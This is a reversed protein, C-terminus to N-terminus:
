RALWKLENNLLYKDLAEKVGLAASFSNQRNYTM